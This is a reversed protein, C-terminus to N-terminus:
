LSDITGTLGDITGALLDIAGEPTERLGASGLQMLGNTLEFRARVITGLQAATGPLDIQIEQGPRVSYDTATTVDQTRGQGSIKSLHAAAVGPGPYQREFELVKVKGATGATDKQIRSSGDPDTWKFVAVVGTIGTEDDDADMTDTGEVANDPRASFRGPVTFSTPDILWWKRNEDCFLRFGASAVLPELFDWATQGAEWTFLEPMRETGDAPARESTSNDPVPTGQGTWNTVYGAPATSGSFFPLLLPGETLMFGDWATQRGAAGAIASVYLALKTTNPNQITFTVSLREWSYPLGAGSAPLAKPTSEVQRLVTGASDMEYVRLIGNIAPQTNHRHGYASFTWMDGKRTSVSQPMAMFSQGAAASTVVMLGTTGEFGANATSVWTLTANGAATFGTANAANPNLIANTAKWRATIDANATGPQLTAGPVAKGIVYNVLNRLNAEHTRPTSDDVIDSWTTLLAEDSAIDLTIKKGDHSVTRKRLVLDASLGPTASWDVKTISRTELVSASANVTGTFRTQQLEGTVAPAFYEAPTVTPVTTGVDEIMVERMSYKTGALGTGNGVFSLNFSEGAPINVTSTWYFAVDYEQGDAPVTVAPTLTYYANGTNKHPRVNVQTFVSGSAATVKIKARFAYVRGATAGVTSATSFIYPTTTSTQTITFGDPTLSATGPGSFGSTTAPIPNGALNRREEVWPTYSKVWSGDSTANVSVRQGPKIQELLEETTLPVDVSGEAYPYRSSDLTIEGESIPISPRANRLVKRGAETDTLRWDTEKNVHFINVFAAGSDYARRLLMTMVGPQTIWDSAQAEYPPNAPSDFVWQGYSAYYKGGPQFYAPVDPASGTMGIGWPKSGALDKLREIPSDPYGFGFVATSDQWGASGVRQDSWNFGNIGVVDVFAAGPWFDEFEYASAGYNLPNWVMQVDPAVSAKIAYVHKWMAIYEAPTAYGASWPYVSDNMEPAFVVMVPTEATVAQAEGLFWTIYSDYWGATVNVPDYDPQSNNPLNWDFPEWEIVLTADRDKAANAYDTPFAGGTNFDCFATVMATPTEFLVEEAALTTLNESYWGIQMSTSINLTVSANPNNQFTM